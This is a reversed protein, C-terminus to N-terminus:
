CATHSLPDTQERMLCIPKGRSPLPRPVEGTWDFGMQEIAEAVDKSVDLDILAHLDQLWIWVDLVLELELELEM